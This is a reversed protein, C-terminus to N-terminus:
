AGGSHLTMAAEHLVASIAMGHAEPTYLRCAEARNHRGMAVVREPQSHLIKLADFLAVPDAPPLLLGGVDPTITDPIGGVPTSVVPLGFHMAELIAIPQGEFHTPLVFVDADALLAWKTEGRVPGVYRVNSLGHESIFREPDVHTWETRGGALVFQLPLGAAQSMRAAELVDAYGKSRMLNSLFLVTVPPRPAREPLTAAYGALDPEVGNPVVRLRDEPVLGDFNAKLRESLVVVRAAERLGRAISRKIFWPARQWAPRFSEGHVHLVTPWGRRRALRLLPIDRVMAQLSQGLQHYFVIPRPSLAAACARVKRPMSLVQGLRQAYGRLKSGTYFPRSLDVVELPVGSARLQTIMIAMAISQGAVPPPVSGVAVVGFPGPAVEGDSGKM